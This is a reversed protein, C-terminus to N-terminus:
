LYTTLINHGRPTGNHLQFCIGTCDISKKLNLGRTFHIKNTCSESCSGGAARALGKTFVNELYIVRTM